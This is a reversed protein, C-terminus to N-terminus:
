NGLRIKLTSRSAGAPTYQASPGRTSGSVPYVSYKAGNKTYLTVPGRQEEAWGQKVLNAGFEEPTLNTSVNRTSRGITTDTYESSSNDSEAPSSVTGLEEALAKAAVVITAVSVVAGLGVEIQFGTDNGYKHLDDNSPDLLPLGLQLGDSFGTLDKLYEPGLDQWYSQNYFYLWRASQLLWNAVANACMGSPDTNTLPDDAVYGYPQQTTFPSTATGTQSTLNGYEDYINVGVVSGSSSTILRTSGILDASFYRITGTSDNIEAIPASSPGYLYSYTGDDLLLPLSGNTDWLFNTTTSGVTRSQRLGDGDSTYSVTEASTSGTAALGVSALNGAPDYSYTTTSAATTGTAAVTSSTRNGNDDYGYSTSPGAGPTLSTLQEASNYALTSGATNHTISGAPTNTYSATSTGSSVTTLQSLSNYGYSTAVATANNPDITSGSTLDGANDYGYTYDALTTSGNTTSIGTTRNDADYTRTQTVGNPDAQTALQGDVSWTFDTENSASDTLSTMQGAGDYGYTVTKSGPYTISNLQGAADYGYGITQGNGNTESTM